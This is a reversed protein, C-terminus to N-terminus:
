YCNKSYQWLESHTLHSPEVRFSNFFNEKDERYRGKLLYERALENINLVYNMTARQCKELLEISENLRQVRNDELLKKPTVYSENLNKFKNKRFTRERRKSSTTKIDSPTKQSIETAPWIKFTSLLRRIVGTSQINIPLLEQKRESVDPKSMIQTGVLHIDFYTCAKNCFITVKNQLVRTSNTM